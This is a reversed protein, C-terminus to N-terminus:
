PASPVAVARSVDVTGNMTRWHGPFTCVFPYGDPKEPATFRARVSEGPSVLPTSFLVDKSDPVFSKSFAAPDKVMEEAKLSVSELAGPATIVLNHPMEDANVFEIEVIEGAQLSIRSLDFKMQARVAEIRITRM